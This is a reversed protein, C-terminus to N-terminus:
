FYNLGGFSLQLDRENVRVDSFANQLSRRDVALANTLM